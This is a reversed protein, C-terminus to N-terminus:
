DRAKPVILADVVVAADPLAILPNVDIEAILDGLDEALAALGMAALVAAKLDAGPRGRVGHLLAAGRLSLLAERVAEPTTPLMLMRVDKFVEVFIGGLGLTLLPGFQPDNVLGLILEVGPPIMQQVLAQPGLREEFDRYAAGLQEPNALDLRM